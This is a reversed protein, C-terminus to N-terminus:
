RHLEQYNRPSRKQSMESNSFLSRIGDVIAGVSPSAFVDGCIAASLMEHNVFSSHAPEHGSGGGCVIAVRSRNREKQPNIMIVNKDRVLVLNGFSGLAVGELVETVCSSVNNVFQGM